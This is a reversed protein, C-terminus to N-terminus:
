AFAKQGVGYMLTGDSVFTIIDTSATTSLVFAVGRPFKYASSFAMTGANTSKVILVYTGATLNTPTSLTTSGGMTVTAFHGASADWTLPNAFTLTQTSDQVSQGPAGNRGDEGNAGDAGVTGSALELQLRIFWDQWAPHLQSKRSAPNDWLMELEIPPPQLAM